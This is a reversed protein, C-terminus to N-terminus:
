DIYINQPYEIRSLYLGHAPVSFGAQRRDKSRILDDIDEVKRKKYGVELLTGVISRVMNRLFRNSSIYFILSSGEQKWVAKKIECLFTKVDTNTKSFCKFDKHLLLSKAAENMMDIDPQNKLYYHFQSHFPDKATSIHYEYYRATADFRANAQPKVQRIGKVSIDDKLFGNLHFILEKTNAIKHSVDFHAFMQLAHVGTDTRGAGLLTIKNRALRSLAEELVQQITIANPQRQWGHYASGNYSLEIFYRTLEMLIM